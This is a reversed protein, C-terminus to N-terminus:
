KEQFEKYIFVCMSVLVIILSKINKEYICFNAIFFFYICWDKEM